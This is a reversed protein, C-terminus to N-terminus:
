ASAEERRRYAALAGGVGFVTIWVGSFLQGIPKDLQTLALAGFAILWAVGAVNSWRVVGPGPRAILLRGISLGVIAGGAMLAIFLPNDLVFILLAASSLGAIIWLTGALRFGSM